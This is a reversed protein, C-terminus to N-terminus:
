WTTDAVRLLFGQKMLCRFCGSVLHPDLMKGGIFVISIEAPIPLNSHQHHLRTLLIM